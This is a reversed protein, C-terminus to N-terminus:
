IFAGVKRPERYTFTVTVNGKIEFDNNGSCLRTWTIENINDDTVGLDKFTVITEINDKIKYIKLNKCDIIFPDIGDYDKLNFSLTSDNDSKNKISVEGKGNFDEYPTITLVPYIYEDQCDSNNILTFERINDTTASTSYTIEPTYGYPSDCMVTYTIECPKGVNETTAKTITAFFEIDETYYEESSEDESRVFKLLKPFQPSTLWANLVRIDSSSFYDSTKSLFMGKSLTVNNDNFILTNDEVSPSDSYVLTNNEVTAGIEKGCPDKIFSINFSYNSDYQAGFHNERARYKNKQGLILSRSELNNNEEISTIIVGFDSSNKNNYELSIM